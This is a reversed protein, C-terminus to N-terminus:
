IYMSLCMRPPLFAADGCCESELAIVHEARTWISLAVPNHAMICFIAVLPNIYMIIQVTHLYEQNNTFLSM